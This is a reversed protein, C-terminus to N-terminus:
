KLDMLDNRLQQYARVLLSEVASVSWGTTEAIEKYQLQQYRHLILVTRQRHPLQGIARRIRSATDKLEMAAYPDGSDSAAIDAGLELPSRRNQRLRDHCLNVIIRYLWTTFKATPQYSHASRYVRLFSEQVVDEAADQVCLMRQALSLAKDQHRRVLEGLAQTQGRALQSMLEADSALSDDM